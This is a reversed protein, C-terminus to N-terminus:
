KLGWDRGYFIMVRVHVRNETFIETRNIRESRVCYNRANISFCTITKRRKGGEAQWNEDCFRLKKVFLFTYRLAAIGYLM